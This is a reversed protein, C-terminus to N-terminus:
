PTALVDSLQYLVGKHLDALYDGTETDPQGARHVTAQLHLLSSDAKSTRGLPQVLDCHFVQTEPTITFTHPQDDGDLRAHIVVSAIGAKDMHADNNVIISTHLDEVYVHAQAVVAPTADALTYRAALQAGPPANVAIDASGGSPLTIDLGDAVLQSSGDPLNGFLRTVTVESEAHNELTVAAGSSTALVPGDPWPGALRTVDLYLEVPGLASNDSLTFTANGVLHGEPAAIGLLENFVVADAYSMATGIQITDGVRTANIPSSTPNNWGTVGFGTVGSAFSTPLLLTPHATLDALATKVATLEAHGIDPQLNAQLRCPLAIDQTADFMQIWMILPSWDPVGPHGPAARGVRYRRPLVLYVSPRGLATFVQYDDTALAELPTYLKDPIKGLAMTDQCGIANEHAPDTADIYLNGFDACPIVVDLSQSQTVSVPSYVMSGDPAAGGEGDWADVTGPDDSNGPVALLPDSLLRVSSYLTDTAFKQALYDHDGYELANFSFNMLLRPPVQQYGPRSLSGYAARALNGSVTFVFTYIDRGTTAPAATVTGSAAAGTAAERYPIVLQARVQEFKVPLGKDPDLPVESDYNIIQNRRAETMVTRATIMITATIVPDGDDDHGSVVYSYRFPSGAAPAAAQPAVLEFSPVYWYFNYSSYDGM